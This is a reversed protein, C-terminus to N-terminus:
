QERSMIEVVERDRAAAREFNAARFTFPLQQVHKGVRRVKSEPLRMVAAFGETNKDRARAAAFDGTSFALQAEDAFDLGVHEDSHGRKNIVHQVFGRFM